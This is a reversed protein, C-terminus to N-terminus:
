LYLWFMNICNYHEDMGMDRVLLHSLSRSLEARPSTGTVGIM